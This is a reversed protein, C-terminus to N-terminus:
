EYLNPKVEESDINSKDYWTYGSDIVKELKEGKIAKVAAEVTKYGMLVPSQSVAGAQTGAKIAEIQQKGSDFGVIKVKGANGSETVGKLAGNAAAENTGYIGVIDSNATLLNKATDAAQGIEGAIQEPLVEVDPANTKMWEKFGDCRQKGTQSTNDHCILAVKGKKGVLEALHKAAEGAAAKNDTQVTSLPINSDVGSDFAIVPIKAAEIEKLVPEAAGSDLAAFGIAAPKSALATRLQELQESVAKEDKPGVFKVEYGLEKGAKEAGEKVAQWFRHQFGKSVLHITKSDNSGSGSSGGCATLGLALVSVAVLVTRMRRM